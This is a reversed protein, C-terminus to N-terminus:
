AAFVNVFINVWDTESVGIQRARFQINNFTGDTPMYVDLLHMASIGMQPRVYGMEYHSYVVTNSTYDPPITGTPYTDHALSVEICVEGDTAQLNWTSPDSPLIGNFDNAPGATVSVGVLQIVIRGSFQELRQMWEASSFNAITRVSGDSGDAITDFRRVAVEPAPIANTQTRLVSTGVYQPQFYKRSINCMRVRLGHPVCDIGGSNSLPHIIGPSGVYPDVDLASDAGGISSFQVGLRTSMTMAPGFDSPNHPLASSRVFVPVSDHMSFRESTQDTRAIQYRTGLSLGGSATQNSSYLASSMSPVGVVQGFTYASIRGALLGDAENPSPNVSTVDMQGFSFEASAEISSLPKDQQNEVVDQRWYTVAGTSPVVVGDDGVITAPDPSDLDHNIAEAVFGDFEPNPQDGAVIEHTWDALQDDDTRPHVRGICLSLDDKALDTSNDVQEPIHIGSTTPDETDFVAPAPGEVATVLMPRENPRPPLELAAGAPSDTHLVMSVEPLVIIESDVDMGEWKIGAMEVFIAPAYGAPMGQWEQWPMDTIESYNMGSIVGTEVDGQVALSAKDLNFFKSWLVFSGAVTTNSSVGVHGYQGYPTYKVVDTLDVKEGNPGIAGPRLQLSIGGKFPYTACPDLVLPRTNPQGNGLTDGSSWGVIPSLDWEGWFEASLPLYANADTAEGTDSPNLQTAPTVANGGGMAWTLPDSIIVTYPDEQNYFETTPPGGVTKGVDCSRIASAEELVVPTQRVFAGGMNIEKISALRLTISITAQMKTGPPLTFPMRVCNQVLFYGCDVGPTSVGRIPGPTPEGNQLPGFPFPTTSTNRINGYPVKYQWTAAAGDQYSGGFLNGRRRFNIGQVGAYQSNHPKTVIFPASAAAMLIEPVEVVRDAFEGIPPKFMAEVGGNKAVIEDYAERGTLTRTPRLLTLVPTSTGSPTDHPLTPVAHGQDGVFDPPYSFFKRQREVHSGKKLSGRITPRHYDHFDDSPGGLVNGATLGQPTVSRLAESFMRMKFGQGPLSNPCSLLISTNDVTVNDQVDEVASLRAVRVGPEGIVGVEDPFNEEFKLRKERDAASLAHIGTRVPPQTVVRAKEIRETDTIISTPRVESVMNPQAIRSGSAKADNLTKAFTSMFDKVDTFKLEQLKPTPQDESGGDLSLDPILASAMRTLAGTTNDQANYLTTQALDVLFPAVDASGKVKMAETAIHGLTEITNDPLRELANEVGASVAQVGKVVLDFIGGDPGITNEIHQSALHEDGLDWSGYVMKGDKLEGTPRAPQIFMGDVKFSTSVTSGALNFNTVLSDASSATFSWYISIIAQVHGLVRLLDASVSADESNAKWWNEVQPNGGENKSYIAALSAMKLCAMMAEPQTYYGGLHLSASFNGDDQGPRASSGANYYTSLNSFAVLSMNYIMDLSLDSTAKVYTAVTATSIKQHDLAPLFGADVFLNHPFVNVVDYFPVYETISTYHADAQITAAEDAIDSATGEFFERSDEGRPLSLLVARGSRAVSYLVGEDPLNTGVNLEDDIRLNMSILGKYADQIAVFKGTEILARVAGRVGGPTVEAATSEVNGSFYGQRAQDLFSAPAGARVGWHYLEFAIGALIFPTPDQGFLGSLQNIGGEDPVMLRLMDDKRRDAFQQAAEMAESVLITDEHTGDVYAAPLNTTTVEDDPNQQQFADADRQAEVLRSAAAIAARETQQEPADIDDKIDALGTSSAAVNQHVASEATQGALIDKSKDPTPLTSVPQSAQRSLQSVVSHNDAVGCGFGM